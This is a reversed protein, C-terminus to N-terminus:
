WACLSKLVLACNRPMEADTVEAAGEGVWPATSGSEWEAKSNCFGLSLSKGVFRSPTFTRIKGLEVSGQDLARSVVGWPSRLSKAPGM